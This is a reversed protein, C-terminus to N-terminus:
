DASGRVEEVLRKLTRGISPLHCRHRLEGLDDISAAGFENIHEPLHDADVAPRERRAAHIPDGIKALFPERRPPPVDLALRVSRAFSLLLEAIQHDAPERSQTAGPQHQQAVHVRNKGVAGGLLSGEADPPVSGETGAHRIHFAPQERAEEGHLCELLNPFCVEAGDGIHAIWVLLDARREGPREDSLQGGISVDSVHQFGSSLVAVQHGCPLPDTVCADVDGTACRV